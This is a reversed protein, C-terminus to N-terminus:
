RGISFLLIETPLQGDPVDAFSESGIFVSSVMRSPDNSFALIKYDEPLFSLMQEFLKKPIGGYQFLSNSFTMKAYKM